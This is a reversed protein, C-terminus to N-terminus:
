DGEREVSVEVDMSLFDDPAGIYRGDIPIAQGPHRVVAVRILNAGGYLANTPDFEIWGAGPLYVQVWAHTAGAGQIGVADTGNDLGPDYLYGSVFRAAFGLARLGEMMLNAFDRCTGGKRLTEAPEQTGTEVREYYPFKARIDEAMRVLLNQTDISDGERVFGLAWNKVVGAPDPYRVAMVPALDIREDESYNFPWTEAHPYIHLDPDSYGYHELRLRSEIRLVDAREDFSAVAISNAFTDHNWDIRTPEPDIILRTGLLRLDHSDRPRLMMRHRAFGVPQRYRYTTVHRISYITM